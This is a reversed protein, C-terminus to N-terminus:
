FFLSSAPLASKPKRGAPTDDFLFSSHAYIIM